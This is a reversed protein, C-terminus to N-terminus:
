TGWECAHARHGAHSIYLDRTAGLTAHGKGRSHFLTYCIEKASHRFPVGKTPSIYGLYALILCTMGRLRGGPSTKFFRVTRRALNKAESLIVFSSSSFITM